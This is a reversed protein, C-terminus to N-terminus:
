GRLESLSPVDEKVEAGASKGAKKVNNIAKEVTDVEAKNVNGDKLKEPLQKLEKVSKDIPAVAKALDPDNRANDLAAQLRNYTFAGALGAKAMAATRGNAGEKFDGAKFPKVIWQHAAGAALGANAAFKAKAHKEKEAGSTPSAEDGGGYGGGGGSGGGGCGATGLLVCSVLLVAPAARHFPARYPM